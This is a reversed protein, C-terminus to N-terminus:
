LGVLQSVTKLYVVIGLKEVMFNKKYYEVFDILSKFKEGGGVDYIEDQWLYLM